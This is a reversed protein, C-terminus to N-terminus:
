VACSLFGTPTEWEELNISEKILLVETKLRREPVPDILPSNILAFIFSDSYGHLELHLFL